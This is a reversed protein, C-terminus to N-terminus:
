PNVYSAKRPIRIYDLFRARSRNGTQQDLVLRHYLVHAKLSNHSANLTKVFDYLRDLWAAHEDIDQQLDVDASPALRAIYANVFKTENRLGPRQKMLQDLQSKLLRTHIALSGFGGSNKHQLDAVIMKVLNDYDPRQLRSLLARRRDADLRESMLWHLASDEFGGLNSKRFADAMLRDRGLLEPNLVSPVRPTKNLRDRQHGFGLGLERELFGLTKQPDRDYTLLAQRYQIERQLNGGKHRKQWAALMEEAKDFQQENQLHLCHYYYYDQTGPILKALPVTRDGALAFEEVFGIEQADVTM